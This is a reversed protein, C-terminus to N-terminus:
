QRWPAVFWYRGSPIGYIAANANKSQLVVEKSGSVPRGNATVAEPDATPV